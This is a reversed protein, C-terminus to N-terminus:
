GEGEQADLLRKLTAYGIGLEKAARSWEKTVIRGTKDLHDHFRTGPRPTPYALGARELRMRQAFRVTREAADEDLGIIFFGHIGIGNSHIRRIIDEYQVIRSDSCEIGGTIRCM